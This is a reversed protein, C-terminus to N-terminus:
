VEKIYGNDDLPGSRSKGVEMTPRPGQSKVEVSEGSCPWPALCDSAWYLKESDTMNRFDVANACAGFADIPPACSGNEKLRWSRPCSSLDLMACDPQRVPGDVFEESEAVDSPCPWVVHCQQAFESKMNSTWGRGM